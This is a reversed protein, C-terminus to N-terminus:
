PGLAAAVPRHIGQTITRLPSSGGAAYVTLTSHGNNAVIAKGSAAVLVADPEDVGDAIQLKPADSTADYVAVDYQPSPGAWCGVYKRVQCNAVYLDGSPAFTLTDPGSLGQSLTRFPKDSGAAYVTVSAALFNAVYLNGSGDFALALPGSVGQSITRRPNMAGPRYVTVTANNYNAAYLNGATDFALARALAIGSSITRLLSGAAYVTVTNTGYNAVYLRGKADVAITLPLSVGDTITAAPRSTGPAYVSVSNAAYNSVYLNGSEDFALADPKSVGQSITRILAYSKGDYVSVTSNSFDAAYVNSATNPTSFRPPTALSQAIAPVSSPTARGACGALVVLSCLLWTRM